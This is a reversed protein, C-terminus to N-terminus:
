NIDDGNIYDIICSLEQQTATMLGEMTFLARAEKENDNEIRGHILDNICHDIDNYLEAM